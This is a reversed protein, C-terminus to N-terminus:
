RAPPQTPQALRHSRPRRRYHGGVPRASKLTNRLIRWPEAVPWTSGTGLPCGTVNPRLAEAEYAKSSGSRDRQGNVFTGNRSGADRVHWRNGKLLVVAHKTSVDLDQEPDLRLECSGHRGVAISPKSFVETYGARAGSLIRLKPKM